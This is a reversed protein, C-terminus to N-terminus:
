FARNCMATSQTLPLAQSGGCGNQEWGRAEGARGGAKWGACSTYLVASCTLAAPPLTVRSGPGTGPRPVLIRAHVSGSPHTSSLPAPLPPSPRAPAPHSDPMPCPCCHRIRRYCNGRCSSMQVNGGTRLTGGAWYVAPQVAKNCTCSQTQPCRLSESPAPPSSTLLLSSSDTAVLSGTPLLQNLPCLFRYVAAM